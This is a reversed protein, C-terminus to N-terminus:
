SAVADLADPRLAALADRAGWVGAVLAPGSSHGLALVAPLLGGARGLDGAVVADVLRVVEPVGCGDAADALLSASVATTRHAAARVAAALAQRATAPGTAALCLLVGCLADDGSPTLGPGRGVLTRVGRYPDAARLVAATVARAEQRLAPDLAGTALPGPRPSTGPHDHRRGRAGVAQVSAPRWTRVARVVLGPLLVEGGGVTVAGGVAVGWDLERAALTTLRLASPLALADASLLPLVRGTRGVGLYLGFPSRALVSATRSPGHLLDASRRSVAAAVVRPRPWVPAPAPRPASPM